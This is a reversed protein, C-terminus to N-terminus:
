NLVLHQTHGDTNQTKELSVVKERLMVNDDMIRMVNYFKNDFEETGDGHFCLEIHKVSEHRFITRLLAKDCLSCSHGIVQVYIAENDALTNLLKHYNSSRVYLWTKFNSLVRKDGLEELFKYSESSEDGYGFIVKDSESLLGHIPIIKSEYDRIRIRAIEQIYQSEVFTQASDVLKILLSSTYNFNLYTTSNFSIGQGSLIPPQRNTFIEQISEKRFEHSRDGEIKILYRVLEDKLSALEENVQLIDKVVGDYTGRPPKGIYRARAQKFKQIITDVADFYENELDSWISNGYDTFVKNLFRSNPKGALSIKGNPNRKIGIIEESKKENNIRYFFDSIGAFFASGYSDKLIEETLYEFFERYSTPLQHALDFGNGILVLRHM